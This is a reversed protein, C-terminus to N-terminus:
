LLFLPLIIKFSLFSVPWSLSFSTYREIYRSFIRKAEKKSEERDMIKEFKQVDLIFALNEESFDSLLFNRFAELKTKDTLTQQLENEGGHSPRQPVTTNEM